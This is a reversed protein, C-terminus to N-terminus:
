KNIHLYNKECAGFGKYFRMLNVINSGEFDLWKNQSANINIYHDILMAMTNFKNKKNSFNFLLIDRNFYSIFFAASVINSSDDYLAFIFGIKKLLSTNIISTIVSLDSSSLNAKKSIHKEYLCMFADVDEISKINFGLDKCAKINRKINNNYNSYLQKYNLKLDLELNIRCLTKFNFKKKKLIDQFFLACDYNISFSFQSYKNNLFNLLDGILNENFLLNDDHSFPGLQQCFNPHYIQKYFFRNRYVIPFVLKYDGYILGGWHISVIDLYWSSAYIKRNISNNICDDWKKFDIKSKDLYKIKNM